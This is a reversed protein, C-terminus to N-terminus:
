RKMTRLREKDKEDVRFSELMKSIMKNYTWDDLSSNPLYSFMKESYKSMITAYAWAIGMKAMYTPRNLKDLVEIVEDIYEDILFYSYISLM